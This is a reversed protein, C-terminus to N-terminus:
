ERRKRFNPASDCSGIFYFYHNLASALGNIFQMTEYVSNGLEYEPTKTKVVAEGFIETAEARDVVFGHDKYSYVLDRAIKEPSARLGAAHTKLLREAYQAASEAVREYYGLHIPKLSLNLYKAFMDSSHPHSKILDAIHEVSSKLGLAPLGDIQPDIPGLESLSGMHIEDASCCLLTAGSKAERPVVIVLKEKAYERCLKGILYASGIVGGTSYLVVLLPKEEGFKTAASYINDADSKVMSGEDFLVLVNYNKSVSHNDLVALLYSRIYEDRRSNADAPPDPLLSKWIMGGLEAKNPKSVSNKRSEENKEGVSARSPAVSKKSPM